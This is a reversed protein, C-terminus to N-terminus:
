EESRIRANKLYIQDLLVLAVMAEIVPGIRLAICVDHRGEISTEVETGDTAKMIQPQGISPTPKVVVRFKIPTGDTIGGLMGGSNEAKNNLSGPLKECDFGLGFEIGKVAGISLVAHAICADIKDFVPEGIGVPVGTVICDVTGGVSDKNAKATSLVEEFNSTKGGISHICSSIKIGQTALVQKAVAGAIVRCVTERGSARGGGRYDRIGYRAQYTADAHGPRYLNKLNDYDSSKADTNKILITLPTGTTKGDFLGSVIEFEDKEKRSSSFSNSNPKRRDLEAQLEALNLEFGSELGDIVVGMMPGHSEGFTTVKLISGFSNSM